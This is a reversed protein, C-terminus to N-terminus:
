PQFLKWSVPEGRKVDRVLKLGEVMSIAAPELGYGPRIICIDQATVVHGASCDKSIYLSRRFKSSDREAAVPGYTIHGLAQWARESEKALNKMEEPELSFSADVGGDSRRLTFHKEILTAGLAVSAIAAGIGLTHDSVGVECNFLECMHPITTLNSSEPSAPYNSTCKLLILDSCGSDRATRVALDLEALSAMGTSIILPKGTSAVKRILPLHNNEFSAIKYAPVELEELFDVATHDFPTSFPILGLDRARKFVREHWEWPTYAEEYLQYLHRGKWPSGEANIYFEERDINLTMTDATYTQLKLAHAGAKAAAEVVELARDLSQKHNGSMEAVILPPSARGVLREGIRVGLNNKREM